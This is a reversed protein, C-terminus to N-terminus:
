NERCPLVRISAIWAIVLVMLSTEEPMADCSILKRNLRSLRQIAYLRLQPALLHSHNYMCLPICLRGMGSHTKNSIGPQLVSRIGTPGGRNTM